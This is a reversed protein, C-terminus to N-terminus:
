PRILKTEGLAVLRPPLLAHLARERFKWGGTTRIYKDDYYGTGHRVEDTKTLIESFFYCHGEASNGDVWDILHNVMHHGGGVKASRGMEQMMRLMAETSEQRGLGVATGDWVADPVFLTGLLDFDDADAFYTYKITLNRIAERDAFPVASRATTV